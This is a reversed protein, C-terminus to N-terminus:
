TMAGTSGRRIISGQGVECNFQLNDDKEEAVLTRWQLGIEAEGIKSNLIPHQLIKKIKINVKGEKWYTL